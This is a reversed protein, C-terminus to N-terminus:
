VGTGYNSLLLSLDGLDICGSGDLDAAPVYGPDGDCLGYLSLLTSLDDLDVDGDGDLDGVLPEDGAVGWIEVDDINWGPYTVWYDTPGIGWRVYVTSQGDAVASIDLMMQSWSSESITAPPNAWITTWNSGDNSVEVVAHDCDSGEVGLWRWFRLDVLTLNSCDIATTTLYHAPMNNTYDGSLNYGYVSGGTHGAAPDGHHSGGGTPQGFAWQGDTSWGPDSELAFSYQVMLADVDVSVPRETDGDHDTLNVFYITGEHLGHGLSDAADNLTVALDITGGGPLTGSANSIDVWDVSATVEYDLPTEGRNELVYTTGPPEFPGGKPGAAALDDGTVKIGTPPEVVGVVRLSPDGFIHWTIFTAPGTGWSSESGPYDDMMSCGGAYCLAGYSHYSEAVYLLNFEDQGEMPPSWPQSISSAYCGVAGTPASSHTARLWTEAFCTTYGDFEGNNCAVTVIFPLMNDNVLANVHSNSFGTSTWGTIGGHGCYNVIGRGENLANSVMAATGYPDYIQDVETYGHALLDDRINDIHENDYEGDDGIGLNSAVGTGKWFWEQTTAPMLEYTITREVQTDVQGPTEASFRGVIIEPYSDNGVLKAYSPDSAGNYGSVATPSDVQAIDGVLLVFALDTSQYVSQIHNKIAVHNNGITSVGVMTTTLGVANKHDVLPQVNPMWADHCIILLEGEEDLPDYRPGDYNLFQHRYIEHFARSLARPHAPTPLVNVAGSGAAYVQITMDTYVRLSRTVPNYQFPNVQVVVGRYDRLVYPQGLTVAAGPYDADTEYEQGFTFPVKAPDVDRPISGKSPAILIDKIEYSSASIVEVEMAADNPIIISRCVNPLDPAGARIIQSEHGLRIRTYDTGNISVIDSSYPGFTYQLIVRDPANELVTVDVAPQIEHAQAAAVM